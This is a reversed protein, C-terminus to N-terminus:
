GMPRGTTAFLSVHSSLRGECWESLMKFSCCKKLIVSFFSLFSHRKLLATPAISQAQSDPSLPMLNILHTCTPQSLQLSAFSLTQCSSLSNLMNSLQRLPSIWLLATFCVGWYVIGGCFFSRGTLDCLRQAVHCTKGFVSLLTECAHKTTNPHRDVSTHLVTHPSSASSHHLFTLPPM